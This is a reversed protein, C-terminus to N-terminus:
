AGVSAPAFNHIAALLADVSEERLTLPPMLRLVAPDHSGGALIRNEFLHAKLAKAYEGAHLGLLLGEGSVATV